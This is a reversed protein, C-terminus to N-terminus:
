CACTRFMKRVVEAPAYSGFMTICLSASSIVSVPSDVTLQRVVGTSVSSLVFPTRLHRFPFLRRPVPRPLSSRSARPPASIVAGDHHLLHCCCAMRRRAPPAGRRHAPVDCPTPPVPPEGSRGSDVFKGGADSISIAIEGDILSGRVSEKSPSPSSSSGCRRTAEAQHPAAQFSPAM